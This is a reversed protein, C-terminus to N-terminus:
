IVPWAATVAITEDATAAASIAAEAANSATVVAAIDSRLQTLYAAPYAGLVANLQRYLPYKGYIIDEAEQRIRSLENAKVQALPIDVLTETEVVQTNEITTVIQKNHKKANYGVASVFVVPRLMPLVGVLKLGAPTYDYNRYEVIAGDKVVAYKM